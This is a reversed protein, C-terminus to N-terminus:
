KKKSCDDIVKQHIKIYAPDNEKKAMEIGLKADSLAVACNGAKASIKARLAYTWYQKDNDVVKNAWSMARNLDLNKKYYYDAADFYTDNSIESAAMKTNIEEVISAHSDHSLPFKVMDNEWVIYMSASEEKIDTFGITFTEESSKTKQAPATFRFKDESEKYNYTGWQNANNSIIITWEKQGPITIIGYEGPELSKGGILITKDVKLGPIKNAGTRWVKGYPVIDSGMMKRGKLSPRSYDVSVKALGVNQITTASPSPAPMTIQASLNLSFVIFTLLTLLSNFKM